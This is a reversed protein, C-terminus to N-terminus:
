CTLEDLNINYSDLIEFFESQEFHKDPEYKAYSRLRDQIHNLALILDLAKVARAHAMKDDYDTLEFSLFAKM